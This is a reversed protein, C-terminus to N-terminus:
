RAPANEVRRGLWIATIWLAAFIVGLFFMTTVVFGTAIVLIQLVSGAVYAWRYRLLGAIIVGALALGGGVIGAATGDAHVVTIAVPISLATVVAQLVLTVACLRRM